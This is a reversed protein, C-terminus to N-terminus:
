FYTDLFYRQTGGRLVFDCFALQHKKVESEKPFSTTCKSDWLIYSTITAGGADTQRETVHTLSTKPLKPLGRYQWLKSFLTLALSKEHLNSILNTTIPQLQYFFVAVISNVMYNPM